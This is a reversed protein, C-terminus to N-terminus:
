AAAPPSSTSPVGASRKLERILSRMPQTPVFGKRLVLEYPEGRARIPVPVISLLGQAAFSVALERSMMSVLAPDERLMLLTVLTSSAEIACAPPALGEEMFERELWRRAPMRKPFLVWRCAELDRLQTVDAAAFPSGPGAVLCIREQRLEAYEFISRDSVVTTRCVVLDLLGQGLQDLLMESTGEKIELGLSPYAARLASVAPV